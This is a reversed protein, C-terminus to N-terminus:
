KANIGDDFPDCLYAGTVPGQQERVYGKTGKQGHSTQAGNLPSTQPGNISLFTSSLMPGGQMATLAKPGGIRTKTQWSRVLHLGKKGHVLNTPGQQGAGEAVRPNPGKKGRSESPVAPGRTAGRTCPPGM